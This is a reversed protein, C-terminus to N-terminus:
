ALGAVSEFTGLRKSLDGRPASPQFFLKEYQEPTLAVTMQRSLPAGNSGNDSHHNEVMEHEM